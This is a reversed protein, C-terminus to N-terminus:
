SKTKLKEILTHHSLSMKSNCVNGIIAKLIKGALIIGMLIKNENYWETSHHLWESIIVFHM